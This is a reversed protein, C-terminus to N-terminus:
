FTTRNGIDGFLNNWMIQGVNNEIWKNLKPEDNLFRKWGSAVHRILHYSNLPHGLYELNPNDNLKHLRHNKIYRCLIDLIQM